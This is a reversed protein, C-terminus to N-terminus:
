FDQDEQRKSMTAPNVELNASKGRMLTSGLTRHMNSLCEEVSSYWQHEILKYHNKHHM